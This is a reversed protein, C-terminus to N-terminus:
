RYPRECIPHDGCEPAGCESISERQLEGCVACVNVSLIRSKSVDWRLVDHASQLVSRKTEAQWQHAHRLDTLVEPGVM